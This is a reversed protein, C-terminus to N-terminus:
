YRSLGSYRTNDRGTIGSPAESVTPRPLRKYNRMGRQALAKERQITTVARSYVFTHRASMDICPVGDHGPGLRKGWTATGEGGVMVGCEVLSEEEVESALFRCFGSDENESGGRCGRVGSAFTSGDQGFGQPPLHTLTGTKM